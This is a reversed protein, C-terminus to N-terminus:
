PRMDYNDNDIRINYINKVRLSNELRPIIGLIKYVNLQNIFNGLQQNTYANTSATMSQQALSLNQSTSKGIRYKELEQEYLLTNLEVTKSTIDLIEQSLKSKRIAERLINFMNKNDLEIADRTALLEIAQMKRQYIYPQDYIPMTLTLAHNANRTVPNIESYNSPMTKSLTYTLSINPKKTQNFLKSQWDLKRKQIDIIQAPISNKVLNELQDEIKSIEIGPFDFENIIWSNVGTCGLLTSIEHYSLDLAGKIQQVQLISSRLSAEAQAYENKSLFGLSYREKQLSLTQEATKVLEQQRELQKRESHINFLKEYADLILQERSTRWDLISRYFDLEAMGLNYQSNLANQGLDQTISLTNLLSGISETSSIKSINSGVSITTGTPLQMSTLLGTSQGSSISTNKNDGFNSISNTKNLNQSISLKPFFYSEAISKKNLLATRLANDIKGGVYNSSLMLDYFKGVNVEQGPRPCDERQDLANHFLQNEERWEGWIWGRKTTADLKLQEIKIKNVDNDNFAYSNKIFGPLCALLGCLLLSGEISVGKRQNKMQLYKM